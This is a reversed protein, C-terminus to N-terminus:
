VRKPLNPNVDPPNFSLKYLKEWIEKLIEEDELKSFHVGRYGNNYLWIYADKQNPFTEDMLAHCAM